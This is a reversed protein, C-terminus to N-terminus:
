RAVALIESVPAAELFRERRTESLSGAFRALTERAERFAAEAADEQGVRALADGLLMAARWISQPHKLEAAVAASARLTEIAESHRGLALLAAGLVARASAVYKARGYSLAQEVAESALDVADDPRASALAVEAGVYAVRTTWLWQHWGKTEAARERLAPLASAARGIEGEILDLAVLDIKGSVVAGPFGTREGLEIAEETLRRAQELEFLERLAGSWMNLIRATLRPQLELERGHAVGREFVAIAEEHRGLGTLSLGLDAHGNVVGFVSYIESGIRIAERAPKIGEEYRGLWYHHLSRWDLAEAREAPRAGPKWAALGVASLAIAEEVDGDMAVAAAQRSLALARLEDDGLEDALQLAEAGLRRASEADNLGWFTAKFRAELAEFRERGELEDILTDLESVAAHFDGAEVMAVARSLRIPRLRTPDDEPLVELAETYFSVAAQKAWARGAQEGAKVFYDGARERDGAERWHHALSAASEVVRDGAAEELFRAVAAHRERRVAKPLTAYAVERILMHRFSFEDEGEIRSSPEHRILNRHELSDLTEALRPDDGLHALAGRWFAKGVVAADLITAREAPPLADLRAAIIGRVTSPLHDATATTRELFSAALEEIFLPNGEATDTLREAVTAAELREGLLRLVLQRSIEPALPELQLATYAPLGGGWTPRLELLEPRALTLLLVPVDRLRTALHELLELLSPDAWHIDEFVLVTPRERGLGEAFRRAARFLVHKEAPTDDAALGILAALQSSLEQTEGVDVVRAVVRDLKSRAVPVPDSEFIGALQKVQQGFAGFGTTEGYPVSRGRLARGGLEEVNAALETAIRTKGIGPPGFITVLHPRSGGAVRNWVGRLLDLEDDRGLLPAASFSAEPPASREGVPTFVRLPKDKGKAVVPDVEAYEIARHTARWTEEGVYVSEPPAHSQLRKATNVADGMVTPREDPGVPAFYVEGTNVGISLTLAGFEAANEAVCQQMELGVRIAREPDDGHAIPAGFVAMLEDGVVKDVFGDYREVVTTLKAMFGDVMVRLDEPDKQESFRTFGSIDAFLVTALRREEAAERAPADELM